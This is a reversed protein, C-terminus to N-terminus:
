PASLRGVSLDPPWSEGGATGEVIEELLGRTALRAPEVYLQSHPFDWFWSVGQRALQKLQYPTVRGLRAAYGLVLFASPGLSLRRAGGRGDTVTVRTSRYV